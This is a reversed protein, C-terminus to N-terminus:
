QRRGRLDVLARPAGAASRWAGPARASFEACGRTLNSVVVLADRYNGEGILRYVQILREEPSARREDFASRAASRPAGGRAATGAPPPPEISVRKVAEKQNAAAPGLVLPLLILVRALRMLRHAMRQPAVGDAVTM